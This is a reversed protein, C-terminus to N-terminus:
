PLPVPPSSHACGAHAKRAQRTQPWMQRSARAAGRRAASRQWVRGRGAGDRGAGGRGAGGWGVGGWGVGGDLRLNQNAPGKKSERQTCNLTLAGLAVLKPVIRNEFSGLTFLQRKQCCQLLQAAVLRGSNRPSWAPNSGVLPEGGRVGCVEEGQGAAKRGKALVHMQGVRSFGSWLGHWTHRNCLWPPGCGVPRPYQSAWGRNM